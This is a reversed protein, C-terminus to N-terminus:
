QSIPGKIQMVEVYRPPIVAESSCLNLLDLSCLGDSCGKQVIVVAQPWKLISFRLLPCCSELSGLCDGGFSFDLPYEALSGTILHSRSNDQVM